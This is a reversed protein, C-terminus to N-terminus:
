KTKNLEDMKLKADIKLSGGRKIIENFLEKAQEKENKEELIIAKQWLAQEYYTHIKKKLLQDFYILASDKKGEYYYSMGLFYIAQYDIKNGRIVEKFKPIAEKYRYNDYLSLAPTIGSQDETRSVTEDTTVDDNKSTEAKSLVISKEQSTKKTLAKGIAVDGAIEEETVVAVAQGPVLNTSTDVQVKDVDNAGFVVGDDLLGAYIGTSKEEVKEGSNEIDNNNDYDIDTLIKTVSRQYTEYKLSEQTEQRNKQESAIDSLIEENYKESAPSKSMEKEQVIAMEQKIDKTQINFLFYLGTILLISAAIASTAILTRKLGSKKVNLTQKLFLKKNLELMAESIENYVATKDPAKEFGELAESCLLCVALHQEFLYKEPEPLGNNLYKVFAEQTICGSSNFIDNHKDLTKM